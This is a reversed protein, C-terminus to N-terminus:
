ITKPGPAVVPLPHHHSLNLVAHNQPERKCYFHDNPILISNFKSWILHIQLKPYICCKVKNSGSVFDTGELSKAANRKPRLTENDGM